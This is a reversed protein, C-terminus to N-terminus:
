IQRYICCGCCKLSQLVVQMCLISKGTLVVSYILYICEDLWGDMVHVAVHKPRYDRSVDPLVAIYLLSSTLYLHQQLEASLPRFMDCHIHHIFTYV